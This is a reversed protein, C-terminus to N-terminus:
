ETHRWDVWYDPCTHVYTITLPWKGIKSPNVGERRKSPPNRLDDRLNENSSYSPKEALDFFMIHCRASDSIDRAETSAEEYKEYDDLVKGTIRTRCRKKYYSDSSEAKPIILDDPETRGSKFEVPYKLQIMEKVRWGPKGEIRRKPDLLAFDLIMQQKLRGEHKKKHWIRHERRIYPRLIPEKYLAIYMYAQIDYERWFYSDGYKKFANETRKKSRDIAEKWAQEDLGSM